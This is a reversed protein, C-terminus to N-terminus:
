CMATFLLKVKSQVWKLFWLREQILRPQSNQCFVLIKLLLKQNIKWFLFLNLFFGVANLYNRKKKATWSLVVEDGVFQYQMAKYKIELIGLYRFCEQIFKSYKIHGLREAYKTSSILDIFIFIREEEKPKRYYGVIIKFFNEYGVKQIIAKTFNLFISILIIVLILYLATRNILFAKVKEWYEMFYVIKNAQYHYIGVIIMIILTSALGILLRLLFTLGINRHTFHKYFFIDEILWTGVAIISSFGTIILFPNKALLQFIRPGESYLDPNIIYNLIIFLRLLLNWVVFNTILMYLRWEIIAILNKRQFFM